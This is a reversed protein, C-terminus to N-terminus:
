SSLINTHQVELFSYKYLSWYCFRLHARPAHSFVNRPIASAASSPAHAHLVETQWSARLRLLLPSLRFCGGLGAPQRLARGPRRNAERGGAGTGIWGRRLGWGIMRQLPAWVPGSGRFFSFVLSSGQQFYPRIHYM